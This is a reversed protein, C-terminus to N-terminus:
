QINEDLEEDQEIEEEIPEEEPQFIEIGDIETPEFLSTTKVLPKISKKLSKKVEKYLSEQIKIQKKNEAIDKKIRDIEKKTEEINETSLKVAEIRQLRSSIKANYSSLFEVIESNNRKKQVMFLLFKLKAELFALENSLDVADKNLRKLKVEELHVRFHDLYEKISSFEVVGGDKVLVLDEKIIIKTIKSIVESVQSFKADDIGRFFITLDCKSQSKNEIRYDCGLLDLKSELKIMFSDYRIAPPLDFIRMAKKSSNIELGSEILWTSEEDKYRTVKGSFDRFHPKLLKPKGELYELVDEMKRPLINTRYGVAIGVAHTMLGIPMEVHIWNHSGEENPENLDSHKEIAEKIKSSIRVSTYRPASPSPNVPSGFFGDGELIQFSCGFPRALKSIAGSLSADGHHYHGTKIVEGVLGVTKNFRSPANELILRQVPTLFDYFNPIGRSQLVYLAYERYQTNIQDTITIKSM